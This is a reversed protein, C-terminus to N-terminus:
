AGAPISRTPEITDAGGTGAPPTTDGSGSPTSGSDPGADPRNDRMAQAQESSRQAVQEVRARVNAPMRAAYRELTAAVDGQETVVRDYATQLGQKAQTPIAESALLEALKEAAAQQGEVTSELTRTVLKKSAASVDEDGLAEGQADIEEDRHTSLSALARTLGELAKAPVGDEIRSSIVSIAKDRGRADQLAFAAIKRETRGDAEELVGVLEEVNAAQREAVLAEARALAAREAGTDAGRRLKAVDRQAAALEARSEGLHRVARKDANREFLAIARDLAAAAQESHARVTAEGPKAHAGAPLALLASIAMTATTAHKKTFM